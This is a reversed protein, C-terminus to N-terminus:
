YDWLWLDLSQNENLTGLEQVIKEKLRVKRRSVAASSISLLTAIEPNALHLKVLCCIQMDSETLTPLQKLLRETYNNFVNNMAGQVEEWQTPAIYKPMTKLKQLIETRRVLQNCLFNERDHLYQNEKTLIELNSLERTKEYLSSSYHDINKQLSSNEQKLSENQQKIELLENQQEEMQEQIGQNEVMQEELEKMRNQNRSIQIENEHIKFTYQSIEAEHEKITREKRILKHQYIYILLGIICLLIILGFLANRTTRDKEIKLQNKENLVIQQNYKEQMAILEKSNGLKQISDQCLWLKENYEIAKPYNKNAVNMNYLAIYAGQATYINNSQTAKNLYYYASDSNHMLRYINGIVFTSQDTICHEKKEIAIAKFICLKAKDYHQNNTYITALERLARAYEQTCNKEEAIKLAKDYYEISKKNDQQSKYIRAIYILSASEYPRNKSSKAYDYAKYYTKMAYDYLGRYAYITGLEANILYALQYDKTKEIKKSADLYFQQAEEIRDSEKCLAGKYYLVMAKRQSDVKEMFYDYAINILSDSQDIYNKYKAQTMLLCWTANQLKDSPAPMVMRELIHLASDPHEYMVEEAQTLEPLLTKSEKNTCSLLGLIFILCIIWSVNRKKM